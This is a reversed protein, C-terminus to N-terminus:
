PITRGAARSSRRARQRVQPQQPLSRMNRTALLLPPPDLADRRLLPVPLVPFAKDFAGWAAPRDAAGVLGSTLQLKFPAESTHPIMVTSETGQMARLAVTLTSPGACEGRAPSSSCSAALFWARGQLLCATHRKCRHRLWM